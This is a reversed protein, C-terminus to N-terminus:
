WLFMSRLGLNLSRRDAARRSHRPSKAAQAVLGFHSAPSQNANTQCCWISHEFRVQQGRLFDGTTEVLVYGQISINGTERFINARLFQDNKLGWSFIYDRHGARTDIEVSPNLPDDVVNLTDVFHQDTLALYAQEREELTPAVACATVAGLMAGSLMVTKMRGM